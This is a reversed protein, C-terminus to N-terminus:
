ARVEKKTASENRSTFFNDRFIGSNSACGIPIEKVANNLTGAVFVNGNGDVGTPASFGGALMLQSYSFRSTQASASQPVCLLGIGYTLAAIGKLRRM